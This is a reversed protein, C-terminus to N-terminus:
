TSINGMVADILGLLLRQPVIPEGVTLVTFVAMYNGYAYFTFSKHEFVHKFPLFRENAGKRAEVYGSVSECGNEAYQFRNPKVSNGAPNM